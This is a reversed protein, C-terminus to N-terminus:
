RSWSLAYLQEDSLERWNPPFQRVRRAVKTNEFVLSRHTPNRLEERVTWNEGQVSFRREAEYKGNSGVTM